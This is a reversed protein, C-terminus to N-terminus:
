HRCFFTTIRLWVVWLPFTGVLDESDCVTKLIHVVTHCVPVSGVTYHFCDLTAAVKYQAAQQPEQEGEVADHVLLDISTTAKLYKFPVVHLNQGQAQDQRHSEEDLQCELHFVAVQHKEEHSLEKAEDDPGEGQDVEELRADVKSRM